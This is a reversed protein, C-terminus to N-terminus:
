SRKVGQSKEERGKRGSHTHKKLLSTNSERGAMLAHWYGKRKMEPPWLKYEEEMCTCKVHEEEESDEMEDEALAVNVFFM